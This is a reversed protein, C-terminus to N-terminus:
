NEPKSNLHFCINRKMPFFLLPFVGVGGGRGDFVGLPYRRFYLAGLFTTVGLNPM